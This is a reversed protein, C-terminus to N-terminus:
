SCELPCCMLVCLALFMLWVCSSYPPYLTVKNSGVSTGSMNLSRVVKSSFLISSIRSIWKSGFGRASIIDFLFDLGVMDFAKTFDVKFILGKLKRHQIIFISEEAVVINDKICCGKIFTSQVNGM